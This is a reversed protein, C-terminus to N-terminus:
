WSDEPNQLSKVVADRRMSVGRSRRTELLQARM